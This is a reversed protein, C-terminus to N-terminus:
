DRIFELVRQYRGSSVQRRGTPLLLGRRVLPALRPTLSNLPVGPIKRSLEEATLGKRAKRFEELVIAELNNVEIKAAEHSTEPDTTRALGRWPHLNM